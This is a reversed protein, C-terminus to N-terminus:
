WMATYNGDKLYVEDMPIIYTFLSNLLSSRTYTLVTTGVNYYLIEGVYIHEDDIGIIMAIHGNYGILDGAKITNSSLLDRTISVKEGLDSLDAYNTFGAGLDGVDYGGNLM